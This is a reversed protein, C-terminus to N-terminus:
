SDVPNGETISTANFGRFTVAVTVLVWIGCGYNNTQVPVTQLPQTDDDRYAVCLKRHLATWSRLDVQHEPVEPFFSRHYAILQTM